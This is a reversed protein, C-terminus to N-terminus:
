TLSLARRRGLPGRRRIGARVRVRRTPLPQGAADEAAPLDAVDINDIRDVGHEMWGFWADTLTVDGAAVGAVDSVYAGSGLGIQGIPCWALNSGGSGSPNYTDFVIDVAGPPPSVCFAYARVGWTATIGDDDDYGTVRVEDQGSSPVLESKTVMVEGPALLAAFSSGIVEKGIPCEAEASHSPASDVVSDDEVIEMPSLGTACVARASLRWMSSTGTPTEHAKVSVYDDAGGVGQVPIVEQIVAAVGAGLHFIRFGAGVLRAGNRCYARAEKPSVSDLLTMEEEVTV